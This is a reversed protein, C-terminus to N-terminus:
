LAVAEERDRDRDTAALFAVVDKGMNRERQVSLEPTVDMNARFNSRLVLLEALHFYANARAEASANSAGVARLLQEYVPSFGDLHDCVAGLEEAQSHHLMLLNAARLHREYDSDSNSVVWIAAHKGVHSSPDSEAIALMDDTVALMYIHFEQATKEREEDSPAAILSRRYEQRRAAVEREIAELETL